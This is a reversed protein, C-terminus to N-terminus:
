TWPNIGTHGLVQCALILFWTSLISYKKLINVVRELAIHKDNRKSCQVNMMTRSQIETLCWQQVHHNLQTLSQNLFTLQLHLHNQVQNLTLLKSVNTQEVSIWKTELGLQLQERASNLHFNMNSRGTQPGSAQFDKLRELVLSKSRLHHQFRIM